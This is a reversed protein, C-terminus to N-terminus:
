QKDIYAACSPCLGHELIDRNVMEGCRVCEVLENEYGCEICMGGFDSKLPPKKGRDTNHQIECFVPSDCSLVTEFFM